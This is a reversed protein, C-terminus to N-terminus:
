YCETHTLSLSIHPVSNDFIFGLNKWNVTLIPSGTHKKEIYVSRCLKLLSIYKEPFKQQIAKLFAEKAAFRVALRAAFFYGNKRAYNIECVSFIKLLQEDSYNIWHSFRNVSISDIGIFSNQMTYNNISHDICSRKKFIRLM